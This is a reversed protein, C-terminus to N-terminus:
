VSTQSAFLPYMIREINAVIADVSESNHNDKLWVELKSIERRLLTANEGDGANELMTAIPNFVRSYCVAAPRGLAHRLGEGRIYDERGTFSRSNRQCLSEVEDCFFQQDTTLAPDIAAVEIAPRGLAEEETGVRGQGQAMSVNGHFPGNVTLGQTASQEHFDGGATRPPSNPSDTVQSAQNGTGNQDLKPKNKKSIKYRYATYTGTGGLLLGLAFEWRDALFGFLDLMLQAQQYEDGM